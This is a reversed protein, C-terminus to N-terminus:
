EWCEVHVACCHVCGCVPCVIHGCKKSGVSWMYQVCGCVPCVINKSGVSWMYSSCVDVFLVCLMDVNGVGSVACMWLCSLRKWM